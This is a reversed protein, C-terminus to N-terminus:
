GAVECFAKWFEEHGCLVSLHSLDFKKIEEKLKERELNIIKGRYSIVIGEKGKYDSESMSLFVLSALVNKNRFNLTCLISHGVEKKNLIGEHIMEHAYKNTYAYSKKIAKSLQNITLEVSFGRFARIIGFQDADMIM